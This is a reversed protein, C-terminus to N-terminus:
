VNSKVYYNKMPEKILGDLELEILIAGIEEVSLPIQELLSSLSKPQLGLCSYVMEKRRELRFHNKKHIEEIFVPPIQLEELLIEPSVAVGAGQAILWNCGESLPDGVRGPLAYVSKGQELAFDATILSGSKKRAEIVLVLDSLASIIRNRKPFNGPLPPTGAAFETLIGGQVMIKRYINYNQRPYCIDAGCGLVAYTKGGEDLAGRHAQGDVGRAMGSIIQVGARALARAFLYAQEQGYASCMRAGVIAVSPIDDRPLGGRVYLNAPADMCCGLRLPYEQDLPIVSRIEEMYM